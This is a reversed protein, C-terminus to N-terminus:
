LPKGTTTFPKVATVQSAAVPASAVSETVPAPVAPTKAIVPATGAPVPQAMTIEAPGHKDLYKRMAHYYKPDKVEAVGRWRQIFKNLDNGTEKYMHGMVTEALSRYKARLEPTAGLSGIGGYDFDPNYDPLKGFMSGHRLLEDAHKLYMDIYESQEPTFINGYRQKYDSILGKTMQVPGYASSGGPPAHRTRIFHDGRENRMEAANIADYLMSIPYSTLDEATKVAAEPYDEHLAIFSPARWAGSPFQEQARIRAKRGIYMNPNKFMDARVNRDMGTGVRGVVPGDPTLSYEFGGAGKGELEGEGPFIRKIYIDAEEEPKVKVPIGGAVPFGVVGERTLPDKGTIIDQWMKRKEAASEAYPVSEFIDAPLVTLARSIHKRVESVPMDAGAEGEPTQTVGYLAMRMKVDKDKQAALSNAITANLLGGLEAAPIAKGKRTGYIEGRFVSDSLDKPIKFRKHALGMRETHVIPHGTDKQTRYSMIKLRDNMLQVFASAGDIKSSMVYSPDFLKDIEGADIAKYHIKRHPVGEMPTTNFMLWAPKKRLSKNSIRVLTFEEPFRKHALTFKIKSPTAETILVDGLDSRRVTGSGYKSKLEGQFFRYSPRHWPQQFVTIRKEGPKPLEKRTAFSLMKNKGLRIDYHRGARRALHEQVVWPVIDGPSMDEPSGLQDPYKIGPAFDASKVSSEPTMLLLYSPHCGATSSVDVDPCLDSDCMWYPNAQSEKAMNKDRLKREAASARDHAKSYSTGNELMDQYEVREHYETMKADFPNLLKEIWIEDKPMWPYVQPNGGLCFEIDKENRVKNGDVYRVKLKDAPIGTQKQESM